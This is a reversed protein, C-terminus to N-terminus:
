PVSAPAGLAFHRHRALLRVEALLDILILLQALGTRGERSMLLGLLSHPHRCSYASLPDTCRTPLQDLTVALPGVQIKKCSCASAVDHGSYTLKITWRNHSKRIRHACNRIFDQLM